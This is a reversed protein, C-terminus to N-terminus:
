RRPNKRGTTIKNNVERVVRAALDKKHTSLFGRVSRVDHRVLERLAWSLAKVVMDDRDDVLLRCVGLTRETDGTGGASIRNLPM